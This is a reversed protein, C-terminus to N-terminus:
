AGQRDSGRAVPSLWLLRFASRKEVRGRPQSKHCRSGQLQCLRITTDRPDIDALPRSYCAYPPVACRVGGKESARTDGVAFSGHLRTAPPVTREELLGGRGGIPGALSPLCSFCASHAASKWGVGQNLSTADAVGYNVYDYQVTASSRCGRASAFPTQLPQRHRIEVQYFLGFLPAPNAHATRWTGDSLGAPRSSFRRFRCGIRSKESSIQQLLLAKDKKRLSCNYWAAGGPAQRM